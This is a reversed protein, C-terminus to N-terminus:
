SPLVHLFKCTAHTRAARLQGWLSVEAPKWPRKKVVFKWEYGTLIEIVAPFEEKVVKTTVLEEAHERLAHDFYDHDVQGPFM